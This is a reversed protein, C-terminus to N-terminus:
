SSNEGSLKQLSSPMRGTSNFEIIEDIIHESSNKWDSEWVHILDIGVSNCMDIKMQHYEESTMNLGRRKLADGTHYYDGNFEAAIKLEPIYVDVEYPRILNKINPIVEYGKFARQIEQFFEAESKSVNNSCRPCGSPNKDRTRNHVLAEFEHGKRECRWLMKRNSGATIESTSFRKDVLEESVKPHTTKLDNFGALVEQGSCYPCKYNKSVRLYIQATYRHGHEICKWGAKYGSGVTFESPSREDDWEEALHPVIFAFDNFGELVKKGSCYHCGFGRKTRKYVSMRFLHGHELCKWQAVYESGASVSEISRSDDWQEILYSHTNAISSAGDRFSYKRHTM